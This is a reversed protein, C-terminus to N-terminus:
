VKMIAGCLDMSLHREGWRGLRITQQSLPLVFKPWMLCYDLCPLERNKWSRRLQRRELSVDSWPGAWVPRDSPIRVLIQCWPREATACLSGYTSILCELRLWMSPRVRQSHCASSWDHALRPSYSAKLRSLLAMWFGTDSELPGEGVGGDREWAFGM